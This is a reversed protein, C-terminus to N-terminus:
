SIYVFYVNYVKKVSATPGDDPFRPPGIRRENAM